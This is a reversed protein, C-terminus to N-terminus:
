SQYFAGMADLIANAKDAAEKRTAYDGTKGPRLEDPQYQCLDDKIQKTLTTMDKDDTINLAPLIDVLEQLNGVLSDRFVADPDALKGAMHSVSDYLRRWLDRMANAQVSQMREEISERIEAVDKANLQVRFDSSAPLPAIEVNFNYKKRLNDVDPYDDQNFLGNLEIRATAVYYDYNAMFDEVSAEFTGKLKRMEASHEYFKASPLLRYGDDNGPLTHKYHYDRAASVTSQIHKLADKALLSKNYKGEQTGYTDHVHQTAKKDQKRAGWQSINLRVM